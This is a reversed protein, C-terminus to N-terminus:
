PSAEAADAWPSGEPGAFPSGLGLRRREEIPMADVAAADLGHARILALHVNLARKRDVAEHTQELTPMLSEYRLEDDVQECWSKTHWVAVYPTSYIMEEGLGAPQPETHIEDLFRVRDRRFFRYQHDGTFRHEGGVWLSRMLRVGEFGREDLTRIEKAFRDSLYEDADLVLIWGDDSAEWARRRSAECYGWPRDRLVHAGASECLEVTGDDSAQDVVVIADVNPAALALTRRIRHAENRVVLNLTVHEIV